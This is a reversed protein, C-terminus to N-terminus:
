FLKTIENPFHPGSLNLLSILSGGIDGSKLIHNTLGIIGFMNFHSEVHNEM